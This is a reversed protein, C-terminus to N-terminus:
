GVNLVPQPVTIPPIDLPKWGYDALQFSSLEQQLLDETMKFAVSEEAPASKEPIYSGELALSKDYGHLPERKYGLFTSGKDTRPTNLIWSEDTLDNLDRRNRVSFSFQNPTIEIGFILRQGSATILFHNTAQERLERPISGTIIKFRNVLEAFRQQPDEVAPFEEPKAHTAAFKTLTEEYERQTLAKVKSLDALMRESAAVATKEEDPTPYKNYGDDLHEPYFRASSALHSNQRIKPKREYDVSGISDFQPRHDVTLTEIAQGDDSRIVFYDMYNPGKPQKDFQDRDQRISYLRGSAGMRYITSTGRLDERDMQLPPPPGAIDRIRKVIGAFREDPNEIAPAEETPTNPPPTQRGALKRLWGWVSPTTPNQPPLPQTPLQDGAM